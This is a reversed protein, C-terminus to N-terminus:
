PKMWADIEYLQWLQQLAPPVDRIHLVAAQQKKLRLGALLLSVCASDTRGVGALSVADVAPAAVQRCFQRYVAEDVTETTIDGTLCLVSQQQEIQM